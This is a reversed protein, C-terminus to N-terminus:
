ISYYYLKGNSSFNPNLYESIEPSSYRMKRILIIEPFSSLRAFFVCIKPFKNDPINM